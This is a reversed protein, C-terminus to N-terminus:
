LSEGVYLLSADTMWCVFSTQFRLIRL